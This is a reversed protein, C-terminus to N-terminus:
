PSQRETGALPNAHRIPHVTPSPPKEGGYHGRHGPCAPITFPGADGDEDGSPGPMGGGPLEVPRGQGPLSLSIDAAIGGRGLKELDTAGRGIAWASDDQSRGCIGGGDGGWVGQM